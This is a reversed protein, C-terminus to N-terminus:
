HFLHMQVVRGGDRLRSAAVLFGKAHEDLPVAAADVPQGIAHGAPGFVGFVDDLFREHAGVPLQAPEFRSRIEGGPQVPNTEVARDIVHSRSRM